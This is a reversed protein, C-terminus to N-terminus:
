KQVVRIPKKKKTIPYFPKIEYNAFLEYFNDGSDVCSWEADAPVGYLRAVKYAMLMFTEANTKNLTPLRIKTSWKNRDLQTM